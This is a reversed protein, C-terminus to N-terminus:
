LMGRWGDRVVHRELWRECCAEGVVERWMGRWGDRVVHRELWRKGCAEGVM